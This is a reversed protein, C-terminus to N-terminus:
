TARALLRRWLSPPEAEYEVQTEHVRDGAAFFAEEAASFHPQSPGRSSGRPNRRRRKSMASVVM